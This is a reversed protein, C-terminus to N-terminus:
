LNSKANGVWPNGEPFTLNYAEIDGLVANELTIQPYIKVNEWRGGGKMRLDKWEGGRITVDKLDIDVPVEGIYFDVLETNIATIRGRYIGARFPGSPNLIYVETLDKGDFAVRARDTPDDSTIDPAVPTKSNVIYFKSNESGKAAGGVVCNKVVLVEDSSLGTRRMDCNEIYVFKGGRLGSRFLTSNTAYISSGDGATVFDTDKIHSNDIRAYISDGTSIVGGRNSVKSINRFFVSEGVPWLNVNNLEIDDFIVNDFFTGYFYGNDNVREPDGVSYMKGGHFLVKDLKGKDFQASIFTCHDFIVNTFVAGLSEVKEFVCNKFTVNEVKLDDLRINKLRAGTITCNAISLLTSYGKGTLTGHNLLTPNASIEQPSYMVSNQIPYMSYGGLLLLLVILHYRYRKLFTKLTYKESM